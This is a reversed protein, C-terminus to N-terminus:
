GNQVVAASRPKSLLLYTCCTAQYWLHCDTSKSIICASSKIVYRSIFVNQHTHTHQTNTHLTICRLPKLGVQRAIHVTYYPLHVASLVNVQFRKWFLAMKVWFYIHSDGTSIADYCMHGIKMYDHNLNICTKQMCEALKLNIGAEKAPFNDTLNM